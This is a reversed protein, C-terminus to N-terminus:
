RNGADPNGQSTAERTSGAVGRPPRSRSAAPPLRPQGAVNRVENVLAAMAEDFNKDRSAQRFASGVQENFWWLPVHTKPDLIVVRLQRSKGSGGVGNSVSVAGIESSFRIEFVLDADAPAAVLEYRGWSKMAAYFQDYARYPGGSYGSDIEGPANSLFVKRGSIIQAPVPAPLAAKQDQARVAPVAASALVLAVCWMGIKVSRM